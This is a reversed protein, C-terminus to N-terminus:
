VRANAHWGSGKDSCPRGSEDTSEMSTSSAVAKAPAIIELPTSQRRNLRTYPPRARHMAALTSGSAARVNRSPAIKLNPCLLANENLSLIPTRNAALVSAVSRRQVRLSVSMKPEIPVLMGAYADLIDQYLMARKPAEATLILAYRIENNARPQYAAMKHM